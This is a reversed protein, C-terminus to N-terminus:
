VYREGNYYAELKKLDREGFLVKESLMLEFADQPQDAISDKEGLLGNRDITYYIDHNNKKYLKSCIYWIEEIPVDKDMSIIVDVDLGVLISAQEDSMHKGSLAVATADLYSYRKLVSKEAEFVVVYGAKIIEARNQYLGYLNLRKPYSPTLKYKSIGYWEIEEESKTTRKNIGLLEGTEWHRMPIIIRSEEESFRIDFRDRVWPMIGEHFWDVHLLPTYQELTKEDIIRYPEERVNEQRVGNKKKTPKRLEITKGNEIGVIRQIFQCAERFGEHRCKEVLTIIDANSDYGDRTWNRVGLYPDDKVNIATKNDGDPNCCSWYRGHSHYVINNCGLAELVLEVEANEFVYQKLAAADIKRYSYEINQVSDIQALDEPKVSRLLMDKIYAKGEDNKERFSYEETKIVQLLYAIQEKSPFYEKEIQPLITEIYEISYGHDRLIRAIQIKETDPYEKSSQMFALSMLLMNKCIIRKELTEQYARRLTGSKIPM